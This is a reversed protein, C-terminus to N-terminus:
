DNLTFDSQLICRDINELWTSTMLVDDHLIEQHCLLANITFM